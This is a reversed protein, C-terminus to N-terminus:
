FYKCLLGASTKICPNTSLTKVLRSYFNFVYLPLPISFTYRLALGYKRWNARLDKFIDELLKRSVELYSHLGNGGRVTIIIGTYVFHRPFFYRRSKEYTKEPNYKVMGVNNKLTVMAKQVHM